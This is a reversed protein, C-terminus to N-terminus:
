ESLWDYYIGSIAMERMHLQECTRKFAGYLYGLYDGKINGNKYKHITEKFTKIYDDLNTVLSDTYSKTALTLRRYISYIDEAKDFFPSIDQVLKQPVNSSVYTHDLHRENRANINNTKYLNSTEKSVDITEDNSVDKDIYPNFVYVNHGKRGYKFTHYMTIIGSKTAKNLMREFTSRSIGIGDNHTASVITQIKAYCVGAYKASYRVLRKFAVTQAKTFPSDILWKEVASNFQKLNDFQSLQKFQNINGSTLM